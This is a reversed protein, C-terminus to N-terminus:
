NLWRGYAWRIRELAKVQLQIVKVGALDNLDELFEKEVNRPLLGHMMTRLVHVECVLLGHDKYSLLNNQLPAAESLIRDINRLVRVSTVAKRGRRHGQRSGLL